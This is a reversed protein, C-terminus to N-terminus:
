GGPAKPGRNMMHQRQAPGIAPNFRDEAKLGTVDTKPTGCGSLLLAGLALALLLGAKTM